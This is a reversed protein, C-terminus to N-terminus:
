ALARFGCPCVECARNRGEGLQFHSSLYGHAFIPCTLAIFPSRRISSLFLSLSFSPPSLLFPRESFVVQLSLLGPQTGNLGLTLSANTLVAWGPCVHWQAPLGAPGDRWSTPALGQAELDVWKGQCWPIEMAKQEQWRWPSTHGAPELSPTYGDMTKGRTKEALREGTFIRPFTFYRPVSLLVSLDSPYPAQKNELM